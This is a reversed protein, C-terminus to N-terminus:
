QTSAVLMMMDPTVSCADPSSAHWTSGDAYTISNLDISTVATFRSLALDRSAEGKEKMELVVDITKALDPSQAANQLNIARRKNSFGHVVFQAGVIKHPLLNTMTLRVRQAMASSSRPVLPAGNIAPGANLSAPVAPQHTAKMGLPCDAAPTLPRTLVVGSSKDFTASQQALVNAAAFLFVLPLVSARIM